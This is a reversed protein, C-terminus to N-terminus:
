KWTMSKQVSPRSPLFCLSRGFEPSLRESIRIETPPFEEVSRHFRANSAPKPSATSAGARPSCIPGRPKAASGRAREGGPLLEARGAASPALDGAGGHWVSGDPSFLVREGLFAPFSSSAPPSRNKPAQKWFFGAPTKISSRKPAEYIWSSLQLSSALRLGLM